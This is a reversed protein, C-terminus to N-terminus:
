KPYSGISLTIECWSWAYYDPQRNFCFKKTQSVTSGALFGGTQYPETKEHPIVWQLLELNTGIQVWFWVALKSGNSVGYM